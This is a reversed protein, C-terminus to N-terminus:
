CVLRNSKLSNEIHTKIIGELIYNQKVSRLQGLTFLNSRLLVRLCAKSRCEILHTTNIMGPEKEIIFALLRKNNTQVVHRVASGNLKYPYREALLRVLSEDCCTNSQILYNITSPHPGKDDLRNNCLWEIVDKQHFTIAQELPSGTICVPQGKSTLFKVVDLHGEEAAVIFNRETALLSYREHLLIVSDLKGNECAIDFVDQLSALDVTHTDLVWRTCEMQNGDISNM